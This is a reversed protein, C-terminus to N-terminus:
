MGYVHVDMWGDMWVYTETRNFVDAGHTIYGGTIRGCVLIDPPPKNLADLTSCVLADEGGGGRM